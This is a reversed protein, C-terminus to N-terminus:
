LWYVEDHRLSLPIARRAGAAAGPDQSRIPHPRRPTRSKGLRRPEKADNRFYYKTRESARVFAVADVGRRAQKRRPDDFSRRRLVGLAATKRALKELR